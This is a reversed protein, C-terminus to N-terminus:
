LQNTQKAQRVNKSLDANLHDYKSIEHVTINKLYFALIGLVIVAFIFETIDLNNGLSFQTLWSLQYATGYALLIM